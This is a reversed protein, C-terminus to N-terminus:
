RTMWLVTSSPHQFDAAAPHPYKSKDCSLPIRDPMSHANLFKHMHSGPALPSPTDCATPPATQLWVQYPYQLAQQMPRPTIHQHHIRLQPWMNTVANLQRITFWDLLVMSTFILHKACLSIDVM